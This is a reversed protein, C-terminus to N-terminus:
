FENNKIMMLCTDLPTENPKSPYDPKTGYGANLTGDANVGCEVRMTILLGTHNLRMLIPGEIFAGRGGTDFGVVTAWGTRKCFRAMQDAGAYTLYDTLLWRHLPKEIQLGTDDDLPMKYEREIKYTFPLERIAKPANEDIPLLTDEAYWPAAADSMRLYVTEKWTVPEKFASVIQQMWRTSFSARNGTMDIIIHEADPYKAALQAIDIAKPEAFPSFSPAANPVRCYVARADEYYDTGPLVPIEASGQPKTELIQKYTYATQPNMLLDAAPSGPLVADALGEYWETYLPTLGGSFGLARCLYGLAVYFGAADQVRSGILDRNEERLQQLRATNAKDSVLFPHCNELIEWFQDYDQRLEDVTFQTKVVPESLAAACTLALIGVIIKFLLRKVQIKVQKGRSM